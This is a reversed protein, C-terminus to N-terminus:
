YPHLWRSFEIAAQSTPVIRTARRLLWRMLPLYLMMSRAQRVVDSHYTVVLPTRRNGLFCAADALPNPFHHHWVDARSRRPGLLYRPSLSTSLATGYSGLRRVTVGNVSERSSNSDDSAVWCEVDAGAQAFGESLSRLLTEMGGYHPPYFKGLELIRM